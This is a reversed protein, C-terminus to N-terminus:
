YQRAARDPPHAAPLGPGRIEKLNKDKKLNNLREAAAPDDRLVAELADLTHRVFINHRRDSYSGGCTFTCWKDTPDEADCHGAGDVKAILWPGRLHHELGSINERQNCRSPEARLVLSTFTRDAAAKAGIDGSDVPDLGVWLVIRRNDSAALLTALGGASHGIVAVRDTEVQASRLKEPPKTALLQILEEIAHGNQRHDTSSPLDPIAAFYGARALREGWGEFNKRSRAFGHAVVVLPAPRSTKPLFFDVEVNEGALKLKESLKSFRTASLERDDHEQGNDSSCGALLTIFSLALFLLPRSM